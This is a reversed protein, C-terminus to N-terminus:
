IPHFVGQSFIRTYVYLSQAYRHSNCPQVFGPRLLVYFSWYYLLVSDFVMFEKAQNHFFFSIHAAHIDSSNYIMSKCVFCAFELYFISSHYRDTPLFCM